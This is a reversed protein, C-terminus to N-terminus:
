IFKRALQQREAPMTHHAVSCSSVWSVERSCIMWQFAVAIRASCWASREVEKASLSSIPMCTQWMKMPAVALIGVSSCKFSAVASFCLLFLRVRGQNPLAIRRVDREMRGATAKKMDEVDAKFGAMSDGYRFNAVM